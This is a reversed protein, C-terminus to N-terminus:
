TIQAVLLADGVPLKREFVRGSLFRQAHLRSLFAARESGSGRTDRTTDVVLLVEAVALQPDRASASFPPLPHSMGPSCLVIPMGAESGQVDAVPRALLSAALLDGATQAITRLGSGESSPAAEEALGSTIRMAGLGGVGVGHTFGDSNIAPLPEESGVPPEGGGGAAVERGDDLGVDRGDGRDEDDPDVCLARDLM